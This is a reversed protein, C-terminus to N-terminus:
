PAGRGDRGVRTRKEPNEGHPDYAELFCGIVADITLPGPFTSQICRGGGKYETHFTVPVAKGEADLAVGFRMEIRKRDVVTLSLAPEDPRPRVNPKSIRVLRGGLRTLTTQIEEFAPAFIEGLQKRLVQVRHEEAADAKKRATRENAFRRELRRRHEDQV